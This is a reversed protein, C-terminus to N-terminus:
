QGQPRDRADSFPSSSVKIPGLTTAHSDGPSGSRM